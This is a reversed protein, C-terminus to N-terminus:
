SGLTTVINGVVNGIAGEIDTTVFAAFLALSIVGAVLTYEIVGQGEDLQFKALKTALYDNLKQMFAGKKAVSFAKGGRDDAATPWTFNPRM